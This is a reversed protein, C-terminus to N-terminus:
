KKNSFFILMVDIIGSRINVQPLLRACSFDGCFAFTKTKTQKNKTLFYSVNLSQECALEIAGAALLCWAASNPSHDTLVVFLPRNALVFRVGVNAGGLVTASCYHNEICLFIRLTSERSSECVFSTECVLVLELSCRVM